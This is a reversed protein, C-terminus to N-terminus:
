QGMSENVIDYYEHRDWLYRILESYGETNSDKIWPRGKAVRIGQWTVEVYGGPLSKIKFKEIM